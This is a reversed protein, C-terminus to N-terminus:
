RINLTILQKKQHLDTLGQDPVGVCFCGSDYTCGASDARGTYIAVHIADFFVGKM